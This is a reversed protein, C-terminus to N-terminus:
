PNKVDKIDTKDYELTKSSKNVRLLKFTVLLGLFIFVIGIILSIYNVSSDFVIEKPNNPNYKIIMKSGVRPLRDTKKTINTNFKNDNVNYTIKIKVEKETANNVFYSDIVTAEVKKYDKTSKISNFGIFLLLGGFMIFILPFIFNKVNKQM